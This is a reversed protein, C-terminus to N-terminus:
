ENFAIAEWFGSESMLTANLKIAGCPRCFLKNGVAPVFLGALELNRFSAMLLKHQRQQQITLLRALAEKMTRLIQPEHWNLLEIQLLITQSRGRPM